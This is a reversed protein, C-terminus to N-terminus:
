WDHVAAIVLFFRFILYRVFGDHIIISWIYEENIRRGGVYTWSQYSGRLLSGEICPQGFVRMHDDRTPLEALTHDGLHRIISSNQEQRWM